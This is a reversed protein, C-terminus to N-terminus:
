LECWSTKQTEVIVSFNFTSFSFTSSYMVTSIHTDLILLQQLGDAQDIVEELERFYIHSLATDCLGCLVAVRSTNGRFQM